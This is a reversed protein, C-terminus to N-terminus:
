VGSALSGGILYPVGLDALKEIVRLTVAIPDALM